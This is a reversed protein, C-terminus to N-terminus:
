AASQNIAHRNRKEPFQCAKQQIIYTAPVETDPLVDGVRPRRRIM